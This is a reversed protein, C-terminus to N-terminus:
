RFAATVVNAQKGDVVIVIRVEGRGALSAPLPGINLQDLGDFQGQAVPDTFPVPVGDVTVSVPGSVHRLGTGFLFIYLESDSDGVDLPIAALGSDFIVGETREGTPDIRLFVAAAVGAGSANASFIGPSVEAIRIIEAAILCGGKSLKLTAPGIALDSPTLFNIQGNSVVYIRADREAGDRDIIQVSFGGLTPPLESDVLTPSDILAGFGSVFSDPALGHADDFGAGNLAALKPDVTSVMFLYPRNFHDPLVGGESLTVSSDGRVEPHLDLYYTGPQLLIPGIMGPQGVEPVLDEVALGTSDFLRIRISQDIPVTRTSLWIQTPEGVTFDYWDFNHADFAAIGFNLHGALSYAEHVENLSITRSADVPTPWESPSANNQEYCDVRSHFTWSWQYPVPFSSSVADEFIEVTFVSNPAVEFAVELVHPSLGNPFTPASQAVVGQGSPPIIRMHPRSPATAEIRAVVYGGGPDAPVTFTYNHREFAATWFNDITQGATTPQYTVCEHDTEAPAAAALVLALAAFAARAVIKSRTRIM